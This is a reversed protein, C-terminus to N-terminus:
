NFKKLRWIGSNTTLQVNVNKVNEILMSLTDLVGHLSRADEDLCHLSAPELSKWAPIRYYGSQGDDGCPFHTDYSCRCHPREDLGLLSRYISHWYDRKWQCLMHPISTISLVCKDHKTAKRAAQPCKEGTSKILKRQNTLAVMGSHGVHIQPNHADWLGRM